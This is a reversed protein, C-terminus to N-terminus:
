AAPDDEVESFEANIQMVGKRTRKSAEILKSKREKEYIKQNMNEISRRIYEARSIHLKQAQKDAESLIEEPLRITLASM